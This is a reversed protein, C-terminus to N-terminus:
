RSVQGENPDDGGHAEEPVEYWRKREGVRARLRWRSSKPHADIAVRLGRINEEVRDRRPLGRLERTYAEVRDLVLTVTRWWGWDVSLFRAIGNADLSEPDLTHDALLAIIDKYDKENTEMVQLKFLLLDSLPLTEPTLSIRQRFDFSHCMTFKDIFVDAERSHQPDWFFMRHRGHLANFEADAEYGATVFVGSVDQGESSRAAYDIDRYRRALQPCQATPSSLSVAVGGLVRLTVGADAALGLMRRAEAVPDAAAPPSERSGGGGARTHGRMM